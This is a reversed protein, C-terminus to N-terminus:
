STENETVEVKDNVVIDVLGSKVCSKREKINKLFLVLVMKLLAVRKSM